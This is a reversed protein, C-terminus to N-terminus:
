AGNGEPPPYQTDLAAILEKSIDFAVWELAGDESDREVEVTADWTTLGKFKSNSVNIRVRKRM